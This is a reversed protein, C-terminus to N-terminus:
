TQLAEGEFVELLEAYAFRLHKMCLAIREGPPALSWWVGDIRSRRTRIYWTKTPHHLSLYLHLEDVHPAWAMEITVRNGNTERPFLDKLIREYSGLEM